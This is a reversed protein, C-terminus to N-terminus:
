DTPKEGCRVKQGMETRQGSAIYRGCKSLAIATVLNSHGALFVLAGSVVSKIVVSSGLPYILHEGDMHWKLGAIVRGGFGIAGELELGPTRHAAAAAAAGRGGHAM